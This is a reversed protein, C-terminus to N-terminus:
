YGAALDVLDEDEFPEGKVYRGLLKIFRNTVRDHMRQSVNTSHPVILVNDRGWLPDGEPLPEETFTDLVAGGLQGQDLAAVLASQDIIQGRALNVLWAGRTLAGLAAADILGHTAPTLPLGVVVVDTEGLVDRWADGYLMERVGTPLTRRPHRVWARVDAGFPVLMEAALRNFAGLGLLLVRMGTLEEQDWQREWRGSDSLRQTIGLRKARYLLSLVVWEAMPRAFNDRGNTVLVHRRALADLPLYNVGVSDTHLWHLSEAHSLARVADRVHSRAGRGADRLSEGQERSAPSHIFSLWMVDLNATADPSALEVIEVEPCRGTQVFGNLLYAARPPAGVRITGSRQKALM